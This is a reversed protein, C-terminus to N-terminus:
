NKKIKSGNSLHIEINGNKERKDINTLEIQDGTKFNQIEKVKEDWLTIQKTGEKTELTINTVFGFEGNDKFFPRTPQIQILKGSINNNTEKTEVKSIKPTKEDFETEILGWKGINIEIGNFGQKVYGNIIKIKTGTKLTGNKILEVDKHWLVLGCSGTEDTLELNIVRGNGGNKKNFNRVDGINTIEGIVTCEIGPELDTIKFTNGKNRGLKDIILMAAANEDLLDDYQEQLQKIEKEFESKTKLDKIENYYQNKTKQM